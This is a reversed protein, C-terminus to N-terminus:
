DPYDGIYGQVQSLFQEYIGRTENTKPYYFIGQSIESAQQRRSLEVFIIQQSQSHLRIVWKISSREKLCTQKGSSENHRRSDSAMNIVRSM